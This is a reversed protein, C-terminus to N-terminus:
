ELLSAFVVNGFFLDKLKLSKYLRDLRNFGHGIVNGLMICVVVEHM